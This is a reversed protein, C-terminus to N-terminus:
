QNFISSNFFEIIKFKFQFEHNSIIYVEDESLSDELQNMSEDTVLGTSSDTFCLPPFMVCWWNDGSAEGIEIKLSDYNGNPLSIDEYNKTPFYFNGVSVNCEYDYGNSKITNLAILNFTELHELVISMAEEKSSVNACLLNMYALLDDRVLHKLNQDDVSNSNALVHLRFVSNSINESVIKAYSFTSICLYTFILLLLFIIQKQKHLFKIYRNM